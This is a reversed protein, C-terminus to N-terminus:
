FQIIYKQIQAKCEMSPISHEYYDFRVVIVAHNCCVFIIEPIFIIYRLALLHVLLREFKLTIGCTEFNGFM